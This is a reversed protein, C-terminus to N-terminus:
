LHMPNALAFIKGLPVRLSSPKQPIFSLKDRLAHINYERVDVGNVLVRGSTVDYMRPILQVLTTKGCGTSGIFAITQGPEATFSINKLVPEEPSGPYSFTM